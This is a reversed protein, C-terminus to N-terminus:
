IGGHSNLVRPKFCTMAYGITFVGVAMHLVPAHSDVHLFTKSYDTAMACIGEASLTKSMFAPLDKLKTSFFAKSAMKSYSPIRRPPLRCASIRFACFRNSIKSDAVREVDWCYLESNM